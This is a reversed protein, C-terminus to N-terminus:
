VGTRDRPDLIKNHVALHPEAEPERRRDQETKRQRELFGLQWGQDPVLDGGSLFRAQRRARVAGRRRQPLTKRAQHPIACTRVLHRHVQGRRTQPRRDSDPRPGDRNHSPPVGAANNPERDNEPGTQDHYEGTRQYTRHVTQGFDHALRRPHRSRLNGPPPTVSRVDAAIIRPTCNRGSSLYIFVSQSFLCSELVTKPVATHPHKATSFSADPHLLAAGTSKFPASCATRFASTFHDFAAAACSM